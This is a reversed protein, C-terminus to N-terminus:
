KNYAPGDNHRAYGGNNTFHNADHDPNNVRVRGSASCGAMAGCAMLFLALAYPALLGSIRRMTKEETFVFKKPELALWSGSLFFDSIQM